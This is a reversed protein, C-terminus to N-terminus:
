WYRQKGGILRVWGQHELFFNSVASIGFGAFFSYIVDGTAAGLGSACGYLLGKTFARQLCLIGVPGLLTNVIIGIILGRFFFTLDVLM